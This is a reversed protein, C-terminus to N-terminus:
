PPPGLPPSCCNLWGKPLQSVDDTSALAFAACCNLWGKPLQSVDDTSAFAFAASAFPPSFAGEM